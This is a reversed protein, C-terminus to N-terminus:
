RADEQKRPEGGDHMQALRALTAEAEAVIAEFISRAPRVRDLRGGGQGAPNNLLDYRGAALAAARVERLLVWQLPMPLAPLGCREWREILPNRVDRAPKGTYARTVVFEHSRAARIQQKHEPYLQSEESMLFATGLWVGQAGLALMAALGRGDVIGGAALVPTPSVADVVEPVLVTTGISGTHGGSEAGQAVILDVGAAQQRHAQRAAGALGLVKIGRRHAPEVVWAPDGLGAAFLPVNAELVAQVQERIVRPSMFWDMAPPAPPLAFEAMFERVVAVHRPHEAAIRDWMAALSQPEAEDMSAPLLLDVGFPKDTLERIRAIRKAIDDPAVDTLGTVGLGGAESVQAVLEPPTLRGGLGGMGALLIPYRIGLLDCVPTHLTM